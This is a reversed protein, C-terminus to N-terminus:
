DLNGFKVFTIDSGIPPSLFLEFLYQIAGFGSLNMVIRKGNQMVEVLISGVKRLTSDVRFRM